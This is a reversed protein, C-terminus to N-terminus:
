RVQLELLDGDELPYSGRVQQGAFKTSGWVRATASAFDKHIQRAADSVTRADKFLAVPKDDAKGTKPNRTFIRILGLSDYIRQKLAETGDRSTAFLLRKAKMGEYFHKESEDNFLVLVLDANRAISFIMSKNGPHISPTDLLQIQVGRYNMMGPQLSLTEFPAPTSHAHAATLTDLLYSKGTNAFGLLAVQAAGQKRIFDGGGGKRAKKVAEIRAQEKRCRAMKNHIDAIISQSGKHKPCLRLMEQLAELKDEPTKAVAYRGEAAYYEPGANLSAM